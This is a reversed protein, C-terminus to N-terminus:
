SGPHAAEWARIFADAEDKDPVLPLYEVGYQYVSMEATPLVQDIPEVHLPRHMLWLRYVAEYIASDYTGTGASPDAAVGKGAAAELIEPWVARLVNPSADQREQRHLPNTSRREREREIHRRVDNTPVPLVWQSEASVLLPETADDAPVTLEILRRGILPPEVVLLHESDLHRQHWRAVEARAWAGVIPRMAPNAQGNEVRYRQGAESREFVPRAVDWQLLHVTRGRGAALHAIQHVLLSKGTAPLGAFFVMRLGALRQLLADLAPAHADLFYGVSAPPTPTPQSTM